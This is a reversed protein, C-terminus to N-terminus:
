GGKGGTAPVFKGNATFLRGDQEYRIAPNDMDRVTGYPKNPDFKYPSEVEPKATEHSKGLFERTGAHFLNGDQEFARGESASYSDGYPKNPDFKPETKM